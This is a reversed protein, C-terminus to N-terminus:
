EDLEQQNKGNFKLRLLVKFCWLSGKQEHHPLKQFNVLNHQHLLQLNNIAANHDLLDFIFETSQKFIAEVVFM